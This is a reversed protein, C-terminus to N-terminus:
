ALVQQGNLARVLRPFVAVFTGDILLMSRSM